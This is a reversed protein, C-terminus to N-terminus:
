FSKQKETRRSEKVKVRLANRNARRPTFTPEKVNRRCVCVCRSSLNIDTSHCFADAPESHLLVSGAAAWFTTQRLDEVWFRAAWQDSKKWGPAWVSVQQQRQKNCWKRYLCASANLWCDLGSLIFLLYIFTSICLYIPLYLPFHIFTFFFFFIFIFDYFIYFYMLFEKIYEWM